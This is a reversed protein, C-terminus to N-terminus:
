FDTRTGTLSGIERTTRYSRELMIPRRRQFNFRADTSRWSSPVTYISQGTDAALVLHKPDRVLELCLRRAERSLDQAEDVFLVAFRPWTPNSKLFQRAITRIQEFTQVKRASCLRRLAEYIVWIDRREAERLARKRGRREFGVYDEVSELGNGIIVQEIETAVYHPGLKRVLDAPTGALQPAVTDAIWSALGDIALPSPSSGLARAALDYAIKDLTSCHIRSRFSAPTIAEIVARSADVLTNTYTVVGFLAEREDFLSEGARALVMDRIHYLGVLTKGTGASGKLLYPGDDKIRQLAQKQEPDLAVLFSALPQQAISELEQGLSLTYLKEVQTPAPNTWYDELRLKVDDDIQCSALNELSGAGIITSWLEMPVNLLYLEDESLWSLHEVSVPLEQHVTPDGAVDEGGIAANERARGYIMDLLRKNEDAPLLASGWPPRKYVSGRPGIHYFVVRLQKTFVRHLSRIGGIRLRFFKPTNQLRGANPNKAFPDDRIWEIQRGLAPLIRRPISELGEKFGRTFTIEYPM